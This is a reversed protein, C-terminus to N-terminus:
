DTLQNLLKIFEQIYEDGAKHIKSIKDQEYPYLHLIRANGCEIIANTFMDILRHRIEERNM